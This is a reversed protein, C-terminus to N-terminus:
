ESKKVDLLEVDFLLIANAPIVPPRGNHGYALTSPIIFTAKSGQNLLLLGEDWGPIVAGKGVPFKIPEGRDVSSDFKEGNILSGTYHVTISDGASAAPGAGEETLVYYLGSNTKTAELNNEALYSEIKVVDKKLQAKGQKDYFKRQVEYFDAQQVLTDIRMEVIMAEEQQFTEPVPMNFSKQFLAEPKIRAVLSDGVHVLTFLEEVSGERGEAISDSFPITILNGDRYSDALISDETSLKWQLLIIEGEKPAPGEGKEIFSYKLGSSTEEFEAKQQCSAMFIGSIILTIVIFYAKHM